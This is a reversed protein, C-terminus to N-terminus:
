TAIPLSGSAYESSRNWFSSHYFLNKGTSTIFYLGNEDHDMINIVCTVLRDNEDITDFVCTRFEEAIIRLCEKVKM